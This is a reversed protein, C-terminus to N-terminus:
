FSAAFYELSILLGLILISQDFQVQIIWEAVSM